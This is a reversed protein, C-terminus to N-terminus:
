LLEVGLKSLEGEPLETLVDACAKVGL